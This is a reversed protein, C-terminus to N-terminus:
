RSRRQRRPIVIFALSFIIVPWTTSSDSGAASCGGGGGADAGGVGPMADLAIGADAPESGFYDDCDVAITIPESPASLNGALDISRVYYTGNDIPPGFPSGGSCYVSGALGSSALRASPPDDVNDKYVLYRLSSEPAPDWMVQIEVREFPGCCGDSECAVGSSRVESFGAPVPPAMLDTATGTTFAGALVREGAMCGSTDCALTPVFVQYTTNPSLATQPTAIVLGRDYATVEIAVPDGGTLFLEIDTLDVPYYSYADYRIIVRTNVPVDTSDPAPLLDGVEVQPLAPSCARAQRAYCFSAFLAASAAWVVSGNALM